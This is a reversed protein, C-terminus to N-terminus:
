CVTELNDVQLKWMAGGGGIIYIYIYIYINLFIFYSFPGYKGVGAVYERAYIFVRPGESNELLSWM